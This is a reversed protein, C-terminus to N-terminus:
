RRRELPRSGTKRAFWTAHLHRPLSSAFLCDRLANTEYTVESHWLGTHVFVAEALTLEARSLTGEVSESACRVGARTLEACLQRSAVATTGETYFSVLKHRTRQPRGRGAIVWSRFVDQDAYLADFLYTEHIEVGGARISCAAAHYGGSHASLCVRGPRAGEPIAAPGLAARAEPAALTALADDIMRALGGPSELKGCSSDSAFVPGQPILLVANQKSDDLQERLEHAAMARDATTSHGHFHVLLSVDERDSYRYHHPVFAIVTDDRYGAGPAPFPANELELHLTLGREDEAITRITSASSARAPRAAFVAATAALGSVFSRRGLLNM